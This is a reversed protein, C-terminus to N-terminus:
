RMLTVDGYFIQETARRGRSITVAIEEEDAMAKAFASGGTQQAFSSV